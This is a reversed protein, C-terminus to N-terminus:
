AMELRQLDVIAMSRHGSKIFLHEDKIVGEARDPVTFPMAVMTVNVDSEHPTLGEVHIGEVIQEPREAARHFESSPEDGDDRWTLEIGHFHTVLVEPDRDRAEVVIAVPLGNFMAEAAEAIRAPERLRHLRQPDLPRALKGRVHIAGFELRGAATVSKRGNQRQGSKTQRPERTIHVTHPGSPIVMEEATATAVIGAPRLPVFVLDFRLHRDDVACGVLLLRPAAYTKVISEQPDGRNPDLVAQEPIFLTGGCHLRTRTWSDDPARVGISVPVNAFLDRAVQAIGRPDRILTLREIRGM